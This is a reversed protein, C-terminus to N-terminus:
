HSLKSLSVIIVNWQLKQEITIKFMGIQEQSLIFLFYKLFFGTQQQRFNGNGILLLLTVPSQGSLRLGGDALHLLITEGRVTCGSHAVSGRTALSWDM